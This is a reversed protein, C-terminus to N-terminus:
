QRVFPVMPGESLCVAGGLRTPDSHGWHHGSGGGKYRAVECDCAQSLEFPSLVDEDPKRTPHTALWWERAYRLAPAILIGHDVSRVGLIVTALDVSMGQGFVGFPGCNPRLCPGGILMEWPLWRVGM